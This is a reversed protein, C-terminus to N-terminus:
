CGRQVGDREDFSATLAIPRPRRIMFSETSTSPPPVLFALSAPIRPGTVGPEAAAATVWPDNADVPGTSTAQAPAPQGGENDKLTM